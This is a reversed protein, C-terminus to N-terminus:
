ANPAVHNGPRDLKLIQEVTQQLTLETNDVVAWGSQKYPAARMDLDLKRIVRTLQATDFSKNTRRANRAQAVELSPLLLIKRVQWPLLAKIFLEEAEDPFVVDDVAVAFGAEAYIHAAQATAQRALAFQRSTESTLMPVPQAIGSVVWERVADVPIHLGKHFRRMLSTAVTSKGSGPVGSIIYIGANDM